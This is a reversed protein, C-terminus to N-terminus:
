KGYSKIFEEFQRLVQPELPHTLFEGRRYLQKLHGARTEAAGRTVSCIYAIDDAKHVHLRYLVCVPMLVGAAFCDAAYEDATQPPRDLHGLLYHGLEHVVAFRRRLIPQSPDLVIQVRGDARQIIRGVEGCQLLQAYDLCPVGYHMAIRVPKVPLASVGCALLCHLSANAATQKQSYEM